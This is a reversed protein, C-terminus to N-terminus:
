SSQSVHKLVNAYAKAARLIHDSLITELRARDGRAFAEVIECHEAFSTDREWSRDVSLHARLAAVQWSITRFANAVFANGCHRFFVEHFETDSQAYATGDQRRHAESMRTLVESLEALTASASGDLCLEMAKTELMLRFAALQRVDDLSPDFIFAGRNPVITVLGLSALRALAARLPTRSVGLALGTEDEPLARGFPLEANVIADRLRTEVMEALSKPHELEQLVPELGRDSTARKTPRRNPYM